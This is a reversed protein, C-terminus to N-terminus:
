GAVAVAAPAAQWLMASGVFFVLVLLASIAYWRKDGRFYPLFSFVLFSAAALALVAFVCDLLGDFHTAALQKGFVVLLGLFLASFAIAGGLTMKFYRTRMKKM